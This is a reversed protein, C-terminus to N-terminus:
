AKHVSETIRCHFKAMILGTFLIVDYTSISSHVPAFLPLTQYLTENHSMLTDNFSM